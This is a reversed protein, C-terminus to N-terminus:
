DEGVTHSMIVLDHLRGDRSKLWDTLLAEVRFGMGELLQRLGQQERAINMTIRELKLNRAVQFMEGILVQGLGNGRVSHQVFVRMEGHHRTSMLDSRHLTSYGAIKGKANLAFLTITRGKRVNELWIDRVEPRTIDMRLFLQEDETMTSTFESVLDKDEHTMLRFTYDVDGIRDKWPYTRKTVTKAGM